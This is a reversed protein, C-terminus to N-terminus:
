YLPLPVARNGEAEARGDEVEKPENPRLRRLALNEKAVIDFNGALTLFKKLLKAKPMRSLELLQPKNFVVRKRADCAVIKM